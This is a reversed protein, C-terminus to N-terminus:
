GDIKNKKKKTLKGLRQNNAGKMKMGYRMASPGAKSRQRQQRIEGLRKQLYERYNSGSRGVDCYYM